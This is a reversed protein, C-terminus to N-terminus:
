FLRPNDAYFAALSRWQSEDTSDPYLPATSRSWRAPGCAPPGLPENKKNRRNGAIYREQEVALYQRRPCDCDCLAVGSLPGEIPPRNLSYFGRVHQDFRPPMRDGFQEFTERFEAVFVADFIVVFGQDKCDLCHYRPEEDRKQRVAPKLTRRSAKCYERVLAPLEGWRPFGNDMIPLSGDAIAKLAANAESPLVMELEAAVGKIVGQLAQERTLDHGAAIQTIRKERWDLYDPKLTDLRSLFAVTEAINM